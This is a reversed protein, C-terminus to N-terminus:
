ERVCRRLLQTIYRMRWGGMRGGCGFWVEYSLVNKEHFILFAPWLSETFAQGSKTRWLLFVLLAKRVVLIEKWFMGLWDIMLTYRLTCNHMSIHWNCFIEVDNITKCYRKHTEYTGNHTDAFISEEIEMSKKSRRTCGQINLIHNLINEFLLFCLSQFSGQFYSKNQCFVAQTVYWGKRKREETCYKRSYQNQHRNKFTLHSIVANCIMSGECLNHEIELHIKLFQLYFFRFWFLSICELIFQQWADCQNQWKDVEKRCLFIRLNRRKAKTPTSRLGMIPLIPSNWATRERTCNWLLWRFLNFMKSIKIYSCPALHPFPSFNM